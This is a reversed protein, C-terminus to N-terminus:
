PSSHIAGTSGDANVGSRTSPTARPAPRISRSTAPSPATTSPSGAPTATRMSGYRASPPRLAPQPPTAGAASPRIPARAHVHWLLREYLRVHDRVMRDTHFREAAAARCAARDLGAAELLAAALAPRGRRLHGTVGDDVIEPASGAPTAVVPTGAALAEIMVLGFPEAWQLPNLLAFSGGLLEFKEGDRLEGVYEVDSCLLPEVEAEFYDREAPERLKAAMRLPVGAARAILAAERPGKDPCMRGLFSAYGGDGRGVPVADVDIGHHIVAAIPVGRATSAQSRSIAVVGVDRMARFVPTSNADFPGHNTVVVPTSRPAHRYLPGAVTHDHIVDVKGMAAYSVVVHRLETVTDPCVPSLEGAEATGPVRPVPCTSDAAAALLVDHGERILGRALRDVVAETGGYAPPPVPVWPPAILGIRM